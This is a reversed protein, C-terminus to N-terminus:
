KFMMKQLCKCDQYNTQNVITNLIQIFSKRSAKDVPLKLILDPTDRAVDEIEMGGQNSAFIFPGKSERDLLIALYLERKSEICGQIFVKNVPKGEPGTQKIILINNM